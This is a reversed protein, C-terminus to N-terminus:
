PPSWLTTAPNYSWGQSQLLNREANLFSGPHQILEGTAPNVTADRIPLGRGMEERLVGSNQAWNATPEGLNPLRDLLSKEGANLVQLDKVKGIVTTTEKAAVAKAATGADAITDAVGLTSEARAMKGLLGAMKEVSYGAAAGGTAVTAPILALQTLLHTFEVGAATAGEAGASELATQYNNYTTQLGQLYGDPLTKLLEPNNALMVITQPLEALAVVADKIEFGAGLAM